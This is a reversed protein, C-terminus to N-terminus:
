VPKETFEGEIIERRRGKGVSRDDSSGSGEEGAEESAEEEEIGVNGSAEGGEPLLERRRSILMGLSHAEEGEIRIVLDGDGGKGGRATPIAFGIRNFHEKIAELQIKQKDASGLKSEGAALKVLNVASRHLGRLLTAKAEEAVEVSLELVARRIVPNYRFINSITSKGIGTVKSMHRWSKGMLSMRIIKWGLISPEGDHTVFARYTLGGQWQHKVIDPDKSLDFISKKIKQIEVSANGQDYRDKERKEPLPERRAMWGM